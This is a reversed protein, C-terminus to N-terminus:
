GKYKAIIISDMKGYEKIPTTIVQIISYGRNILENIDIYLTSMYIGNKYFTEQM